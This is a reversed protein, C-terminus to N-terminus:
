DNKDDIKLNDIDKKIEDIDKKIKHDDWALLCILIIVGIISRGWENSYIGYILCIMGVIFVVRQLTEDNM